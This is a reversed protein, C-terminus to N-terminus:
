WQKDRQHRKTKTMANDIWWNVIKTDEFKEKLSWDQVMSCVICFFCANVKINMNMVWVGRDESNEHKFIIEKVYYATSLYIYIHKGKRKDYCYIYGTTITGAPSVHRFVYFLFLPQITFDFTYSIGNGFGNDIGLVCM